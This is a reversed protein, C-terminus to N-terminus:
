RQKQPLRHAGIQITKFVVDRAADIKPQLSSNRLFGPTWKYHKEEQSQIGDLVTDLENKLKKKAEANFEERLQDTGLYKTLLDNVASIGANKIAQKSTNSYTEFIGIIQRLSHEVADSDHMGSIFTQNVKNIIPQFTSGSKQYSKFFSINNHYYMEEKKQLDVMAESLENKVKGTAELANMGSIKRELFKMKEVFNDRIEKKGGAYKLVGDKIQEVQNILKAKTKNGSSSLADSIVASADFVNGGSIFGNLKAALNDSCIDDNCELFEEFKETFYIEVDLIDEAELKGVVCATELQEMVDVVYNQLAETLSKKDKKHYNTKSEILKNRRDNLNKKCEGNSLLSTSNDLNQKCKGEPYLIAATMSEKFVSYDRSQNKLETFYKFTNTIDLVTGNQSYELGLAGALESLFKNTQFKGYVKVIKGLSEEIFRELFKNLQSNKHDDHIKKLLLDKRSISKTRGLM